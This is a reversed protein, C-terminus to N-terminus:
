VDASHLAIFAKENAGETVLSLKFLMTTNWQKIRLNLSFILFSTFTFNRAAGSPPIFNSWRPKKWVIGCSGDAMVPRDPTDAETPAAAAAGDARCTDM